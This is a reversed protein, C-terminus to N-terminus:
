LEALPLYLPTDDNRGMQNEAWPKMRMEAWTSMRKPGDAFRQYINKLKIKYKKEKFSLHQM